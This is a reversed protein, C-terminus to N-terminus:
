FPIFYEQLIFFYLWDCKLVRCLAANVTGSYYPPNTFRTHSMDKVVIPHTPNAYLSPKSLAFIDNM